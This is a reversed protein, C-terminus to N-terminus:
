ATPDSSGIAKSAVRAASLAPPNLRFCLPCSSARQPLTSTRSSAAKLKQPNGSPRRSLCGPQESVSALQFVESSQYIALAGAIATVSAQRGDGEALRQRPLTAQLQAMSASPRPSKSLLFPRAREPRGGQDEVIRVQIRNGVEHYLRACHLGAHFIDSSQLSRTEHVPTRQARLMFGKGNKGRSEMWRHLVTCPQWFHLIGANVQPLLLPRAIRELHKWRSPNRASPTSGRTM